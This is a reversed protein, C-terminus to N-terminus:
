ASVFKELYDVVEKDPKFHLDYAPVNFVLDECISLIDSMTKEDYWPISTVPMLREIAERPKIERIMNEGAHHIFFIGYLPFNKNEAIGADGPWPTGFAKFIDDIKRLIIRDDSLLEAGTGNLFQRSLTSKGAGSRGPFVCCRGNINIGAAHVL